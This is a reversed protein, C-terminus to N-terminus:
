VAVRPALTTLLARFEVVLRTEMANESHSLQTLAEEIQTRSPQVQSKNFGVFWAWLCAVAKRRIIEDSDAALKLLVPLKQWKGCDGLLTFARMRAAMPRVNELLTSIERMSIAGPHQRLIALATKGMTSSRSSVLEERLRPLSDDFHCAAFVRLAAARVRASFHETWRRCEDQSMVGGTERYGLVAAAIIRTSSAPGRMAEMYRNQLEVAPLRKMVHHQAFERLGQVPDFLASEVVSNFKEIQAGSMRYMGSRRVMSFRSTVARMLCEEPLEAGDLQLRKLLLLPLIPDSGDLLRNQIQPDRLVGSKSLLLFALQRTRPDASALADIVAPAAQKTAM